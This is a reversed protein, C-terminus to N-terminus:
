PFLGKPVGKGQEASWQKRTDKDAKAAQRVAENYKEYLRRLKYPNTTRTGQDDNRQVTMWAGSQDMSWSVSQLAGDPSVTLWGSYSATEATETKYEKEYADLYKEALKDIKDKNIPKGKADYFVRLEPHLFIRVAEKSKPDLFRTKYYEDYSGKEPSRLQVACRLKLVPPVPEGSSNLKWIPNKFQVTQTENDILPSEPVVCRSLDFGVEDQLDSTSNEGTLPDMFEGWVIAPYHEVVGIRKRTFVQVNMLDFSRILGLAVDGIGTKVKNTKKVRFLRYVSAMAAARDQDSTITALWNPEVGTWGAAPKYSLDNILKIDGNKEMGVAELELDCQFWNEAGIVAIGAPLDPPDLAAQYSEFLGSPLANGVGVPQIMVRNNLALVIRLGCIDCLNQLAIAANTNDWHVEPRLDGPVGQVSANDEGLVKLCLKILETPTRECDSLAYKKDPKGGTTTDKYLDGKADRFNYHGSITFNRWQWRRDLITLSIVEGSQNFQYTATDALCDRLIIKEDGYRLVLAGQKTINKKQPLIRLITQSPTIGHALTCHCSEVLEVNSFTAVAQLDAM